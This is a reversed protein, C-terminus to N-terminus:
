EPKIKIIRQLKGRVSPNVKIIRTLRGKKDLAELGSSLKPVSVNLARSLDANTQFIEFNHDSEILLYILLEQQFQTLGKLDLNVSLQQEDSM